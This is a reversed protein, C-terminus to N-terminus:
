TGGVNDRRGGPPHAGLGWAEADQHLVTGLALQVLHQAGAALDGGGEQHVPCRADGAAHVVQVEVLDDM